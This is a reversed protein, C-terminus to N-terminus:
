HCHRDGKVVRRAGKFLQDNRKKSSLLSQCSESERQGPKQPKQPKQSKQSNQCRKAGHNSKFGQKKCLRLSSSAGKSCTVQTIMGKSLLNQLVHKFYWTNHTM